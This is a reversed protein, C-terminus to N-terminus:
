RAGGTVILYRCSRPLARGVTAAEVALCAYTTTAPKAALWGDILAHTGYVRVDDFRAFQRRLDAARWLRWPVLMGLAEVTYPTRRRHRVGLTMVLFRGGPALVRQIEAVVREPEAAYAFSAFLSVISDFSCDPLSSLDAMDGQLFTHRPFKHRAVSLMGNSIDVGVYREPAVPAHELFLGTGCGLDLIQGRDCGARQVLRFALTNEARALPSGYAADYADALRDYAHEASVVCATETSRNKQNPTALLAPEGAFMRNRIDKLGSFRRVLCAGHQCIM